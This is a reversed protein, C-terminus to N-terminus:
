WVSRFPGHKTNSDSWALCIDYYREPVQSHIEELRQWVAFVQQHSQTGSTGGAHILDVKKVTLHPRVPHPWTPDHNFVYYPLDPLTMTSCRSPLTLYPRAQVCAPHPWTRDHKFVHQTLDPLTMSSCMNPSINYPCIQVCASHPLTPDYKFMYKTLDPLTMCSHMSQSTLYAMCSCRSPSTLYPWAHVHVPHQWTPDYM